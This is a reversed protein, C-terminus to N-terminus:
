RLYVVGNGSSVFRGFLPFSMVAGSLSLSVSGFCVGCVSLMHRRSRVRFSGYQRFRGEYSVFTCLPLAFACGVGLNERGLVSSGCERVHLYTVGSLWAWVSIIFAGGYSFTYGKAFKGDYMGGGSLSLMAGGAPSKVLLGHVFLVGRFVASSLGPFSSYGRDFLGRCRCKFASGGRVPGRM